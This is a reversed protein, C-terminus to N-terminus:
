VFSSRVSQPGLMPCPWKDEDYWLQAPSCESAAAVQRLLLLRVMQSQQWSIYM